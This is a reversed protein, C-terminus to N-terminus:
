ATSLQVIEHGAQVWEEVGGEYARVNTYGLKRLKEAAMGSMPCRPGACYVIIEADKPVRSHAVHRGVRDLPVRHSGPIMEGHFYDDTLVNWLYFDGGQDLMRKLEDRAITRAQTMKARGTVEVAREPGAETDCHPNVGLTWQLPDSSPFSDALAQDLEAEGVTNDCVKREVNSDSMSKM